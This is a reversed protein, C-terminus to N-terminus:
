VIFMKSKSNKSNQIERHIPLNAVRNKTPVNDLRTCIIMEIQLVIDHLKRLGSMQGINKKRLFSQMQFM